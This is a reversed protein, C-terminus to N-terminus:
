QALAAIDAPISPDDVDLEGSELQDIAEDWDIRQDINEKTYVTGPSSMWAPITKGSEVGKIVAVLELGLRWPTLEYTAYENGNEIAEVADTDGNSGVTVPASIGAQKLALAAGIASADNYAIVGQVDNHNKTLADAVVKQAGAVDDTQNEVLGVWELGAEEAFQEYRTMLQQLSPVPIGLGVGLVKGQGGLGTVLTDINLKADDYLGSDINATLDGPDADPNILCAVCVVPIDAAKARKIAPALSEYAGALQGLVIVDVQQAIMQDVGAAQKSADLQADYSVTKWGAHAAAADFSKEWYSLVPQAGSANVYAVTLSTSTSASGDDSADSSDSSSGCASLPLAAGAVVAVFATRALRHTRSM